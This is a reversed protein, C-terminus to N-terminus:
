TRISRACSPIRAPPWPRSTTSGPTPGLSSRARSSAPAPRTRSRSTTRPARTRTSSSWSSRRTPRAGHLDDGRLAIDKAHVTVDAAAGPRRAARFGTGRVGSEGSGPPQGSARHAARAWRARAAASTAHRCGAPRCSSRVSSCSPWRGSCRPRRARRRRTRSTAPSTPRRSRSTSGARMSRALRGPHRRARHRGGGAALRRVRPRAHADGDRARRAGAPVIPRAHARGSPTRQPRGDPLPPAGDRRPRPRVDPAGRGALVAADARDRDRGPAPGPGGFVVGLMLLGVGLPPSRRRGRRGPCISRRAPDPAHHASAAADGQPRALIRLFVIALLLVILVFMLVPLLAIVAGWDPIVFQALLELIGNWIEDLM